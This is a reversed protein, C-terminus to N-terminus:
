LEAPEGQWSLELHQRFLQLLGSRKRPKKLKVFHCILQVVLLSSAHLYMLIMKLHIMEMLFRQFKKHLLAITM